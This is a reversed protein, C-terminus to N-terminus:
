AVTGIASSWTFTAAQALWTSTANERDFHGGAGTLASAPATLPPAPQPTGPAALSDVAVSSEPSWVIAAHSRIRSDLLSFEEVLAGDEATVTGRQGSGVPTEIRDLCVKGQGTPTM